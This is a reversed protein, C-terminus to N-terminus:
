QSMEVLDPFEVVVGVAEKPEGHLPNWVTVALKLSPVLIMGAWGTPSNPKHFSWM